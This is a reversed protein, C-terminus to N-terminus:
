GFRRPEPSGRCQICGVVELSGSKRKHCPGEAQLWGLFDFGDNYLVLNQSSESKVADGSNFGRNSRGPHFEAFPKM